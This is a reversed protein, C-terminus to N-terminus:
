AFADSACVQTMFLKHLEPIGKVDLLVKQEPWEHYVGAGTNGALMAVSAGAVQQVCGKFVDEWM